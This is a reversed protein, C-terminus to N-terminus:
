AELAARVSATIAAGDFPKPLFTQGRPLAGSRITADETYGSIFVVRMGPRSAVLRAALATGSMGPMVVDTVLVDIRGASLALALADDPGPAELVTYGARELARCVVARVAREDEVVLVTGRGGEEASARRGEAAPAGDARPLCVTFSTGAGPASEVAIAGRTRKVISFVTALGLGTGKGDRKTTFFPEFIHPRASADIGTGSDKVELLACAGAVDCEPPARDATRTSIELRGGAPMADRANVVLNLLVQELQSPDAHVVVPAEDLRTEISISEPIVRRLMRELGRVVANLDVTRDAAIPQQRSFALLQRTLAAAREGSAVVEQALARAEPDSARQELEAASGLVVTLINNFDHAIGGALRGVAEMKESQRVREELKRRETVDLAIGVTGIVAGDAGRYPHRIVEYIVTVGDVAVRQEAHLEAGTALVQADHRAIEDARDPGFIEAYTLGLLSAEPRRALRAFAANVAVFRGAADKLWAPHSIGQLIAEREISARELAATRQTVMEALRDPLRFVRYALCAVLAAVAVVLAYPLPWTARGWGARPAVSLTWAGGPLRVEATVADRMSAAGASATVREAGSVGSTRLDYEYGAEALRSVDAAELLKPVGLIASAVGWFREGGRGDDVFVAVRAALGVGGQRLRFPGALVLRRTEMARLVAQQHVPEHLLDLGLAAENGALPRIHRLVGDPALQLSDIGGFVGLLDDAYREFGDAGGLQRVAAALAYPAALSGELNRAIADAASRATDTAARRREARDLRAEQGVLLAGAAAVAVFVAGTKVLVSSRM